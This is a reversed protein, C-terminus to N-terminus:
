PRPKLEEDGGTFESIMKNTAILLGFALFAKLTDWPIFPAVGVVFAKVLADLVRDGGILTFWAALYLAGLTYILTISLLTALLLRRPAAVRGRGVLIGGISAGALFGMLYGFTPSAVYWIGGGMAFLPLGLLGGAIYAAVVRWARRGLLLILYTLVMTQLTFPVPTIPLFFRVKASATLAGVGGFIIAIERLVVCLSSVRSGRRTLVQELVLRRKRRPLVM